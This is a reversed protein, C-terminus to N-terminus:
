SLVSLLQLQQGQHLVAVLQAMRLSNTIQKDQLTNHFLISAKSVKLRPSGRFIPLNDASVRAPSAKLRLMQRTVATDMSRSRSQCAEEAQEANACVGLKGFLSHLVLHLWAASM